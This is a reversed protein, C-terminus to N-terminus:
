PTGAFEILNGDPDTIRFLAFTPAYETYDIVFKIKADKLTNYTQKISETAFCPSFESHKGFTNKEARSEELYLMIEGTQLIIGPPMVMKSKTFGLIETYFKVSKKLNTVYIAIINLNIIKIM